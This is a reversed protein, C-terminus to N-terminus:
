VTPDLPRCNPKEVDCSMRRMSRLRDTDGALNLLAHLGNNGVVLDSLHVRDLSRYFAEVADSLAGRLWCVSVLTCTNDAGFCEAIPTESEFIRFVHGVNILHIPQNLRLGGHRGRTADIFGHQVLKSIVQALHNESANCAAAIDAKRVTRDLNVGCHM